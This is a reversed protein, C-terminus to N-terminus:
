ASACETKKEYKKGGKKKSGVSGSHGKPLLKGEMERAFRGGKKAGNKEVGAQTGGLLGVKQEYLKKKTSGRNWGMGRLIPVKRTVVM